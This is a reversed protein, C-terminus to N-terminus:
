GDPEDFGGSGSLSGYGAGQRHLLSANHEQGLQSSSESAGARCSAGMRLPTGAIHEVFVRGCVCLAFVFREPEISSIARAAESKNMRRQQVAEVIKRRLDESYADM